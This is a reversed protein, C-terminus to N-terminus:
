IVVALPNARFYQRSHMRQALAFMESQTLHESFIVYEAYTLGVQWTSGTYYINGLSFFKDDTSPILAAPASDQVYDAPGGRKASGPCYMSLGSADSRGWILIIFDDEDLGTTFGPAEVRLQAASGRSLFSIDNGAAADNAMIGMAGGDGSTATASGWVVASEAMNNFKLVVAHTCDEHDNDKFPTYLGHRGGSAITMSNVGYTPVATGVTLVVADDNIAVLSSADNGFMWHGLADMEPGAPFGPVITGDLTPMDSDITTPALWVPFRAM